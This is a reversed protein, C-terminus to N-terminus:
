PTQLVTFGSSDVGKSEARTVLYRLVTGDIQEPLFRVSGDCFLGNAGGPHLSFIEDNPGCNNLSWPCDSPGNKPTANQNIFGKLASASANPPGSVGNGNDPEAWRNIARKGSPTPDDAANGATIVPDPYASTTNPEDTEYNRGSDESIALTHSTGDTIDALRAGIWYGPPVPNGAGDVGGSAESGPSLSQVGTNKRLCLAGDMRTAKNRIKTVPDIDTYVTPMYDCSGYGHPDPIYYGNSPCVFLPIQTKAAQQNGPFRKDNYAYQLNMLQYVQNQEAFRLLQTFTSHLDFATTKTKPDTGEGGTPLVRLTNEHNHMALGLQRLNNTCQSRRASERAAQVAPLLLAILVGIIAIVVLLEVLTFGTRKMFQEKSHSQM